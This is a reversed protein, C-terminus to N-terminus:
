ANTACVCLMGACVCACLCMHVRVQHPCTCTPVSAGMQSWSSDLMLLCISRFTVLEAAMVPLTSRSNMLHPLGADMHAFTARHAAPLLRM